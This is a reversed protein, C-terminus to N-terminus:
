TKHQWEPYLHDRLLLHGFRDPHHGDTTFIRNWARHRAIIKASIELWEPLKDSQCQKLISGFESWWAPNIISTLQNSEILQSWSPVRININTWCDASLWDLDCLGGILQLHINHLKALKNGRDLARYLLVKATDIISERSQLFYQPGNSCRTPCTVIWYITDKEDLRYKLLFDDLRNLCTTNSGAGVSLNVVRDHLM